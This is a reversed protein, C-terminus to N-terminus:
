IRDADKGPLFLGNVMLGTGVLLIFALAIQGTVFAGRLRQRSRGATAGRSSDRMADLPDAKSNQFAPVIGVFLACAISVVM